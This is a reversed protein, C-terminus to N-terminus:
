ARATAGCLQDLEDTLRQAMHDATFAALFRQHGADAIRARAADDNVLREMAEALVMADASDALVGTLGDEIIELPGGGAVALVATGHSMGEILVNGFPEAASASVLVDACRVYPAVDDVQGTFLIREGVGCEIAVEPLHTAYEVSLGFAAGGVVVGHLDVGRAHLLGLAEIFRNQGKWEQLRGVIVLVKREAPIALRQRLALREAASPTGPDPTGPHVVVVRRQPRLRNQADASAHSSAAIVDAHLTTALRDLWHGDPTNHQWWMAAPRYHALRRAAAGYLHIKAQWDLLVDPRHEDILTRLFRV